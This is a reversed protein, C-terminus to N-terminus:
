TRARGRRGSRWPAGAPRRTRGSRGAARGPTPRARPPPCAPPPASRCRDAARDCVPTPGISATSRRNGPSHQHDRVGTQRVVELEGRQGVPPRQHV